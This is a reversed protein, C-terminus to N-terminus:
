ILETIWAIPIRAGFVVYLVILARPLRRELDSFSLRHGVLQRWFPCVVVGGIFIALKESM